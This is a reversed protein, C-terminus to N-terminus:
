AVSHVGTESGRHHTFCLVVLNSLEDSGGDRIRTLHHVELEDFTGCVACPRNQEIVLEYRNRWYQQPRKFHRDQRAAWAAFTARVREPNAQKWERNQRNRKLRNQAAYLRERELSEELHEQRYQRAYARAYDANNAYWERHNAQWTDRDAYYRALSAQREEERHAAHYRANHDDFYCKACLGHGHHPHETSSCRVCADHKL